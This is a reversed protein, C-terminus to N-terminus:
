MHDNSNDDLVGVTEHANGAWFLQFPKNPAPTPFRSLIVIPSPDPPLRRCASCGTAQVAQNAGPRNFSCCCLRQFPLFPVFSCCAVFGERHVRALLHM